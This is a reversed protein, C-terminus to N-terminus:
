MVRPYVRLERGAPLGRLLDRLRHGIKSTPPSASPASSVAGLTAGIMPIVDLLAVVAALAVAYEGLGVVFLFVLSCIGAACRSWSPAPSTTASTTSSGTASTPSGSADAPRPSTRVIAGAQHPGALGPLLADARLRHVHQRRVVPGRPRVRGRRRLPQSALEGSPSSTRPRRSSRSSRTSSAPDATASSRRRVLRARQRRDRRGPRHDGPGPRRLLAVLAVLVVVSSRHAGGLHRKLGRRM